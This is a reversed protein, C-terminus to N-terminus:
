QLSAGAYPDFASPPPMKRPDALPRPSEESRTQEHVGQGAVVFASAIVPAGLLVFCGLVVRLGDRVPLRGGLMLLGIVAVALVSLGVALSGTVLSLLWDTAAEIPSTTPDAFPAPTYGSEM